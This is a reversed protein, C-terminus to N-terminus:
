EILKAFDERRDPYYLHDFYLTERSEFKRVFLNTDGQSSKLISNDTTRASPKSDPEDFSVMDSAKRM